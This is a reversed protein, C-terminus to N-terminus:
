VADSIPKMYNALKELDEYFFRQQWSNAELVKSPDFTTTSSNDADPVNFGLTYYILDISTVTCNKGNLVFGDAQSIENKLEYETMDASIMVSSIDGGDNKKQIFIRADDKVHSITFKIKTFIKVDNGNLSVELSNWSGLDHNGSYLKVPEHLPEKDPVNWHWMASVIGGENYWDTVPTIDSYDIWNAPSSSLHGNVM